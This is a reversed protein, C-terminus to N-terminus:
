GEKPTSEEANLVEKVERTLEEAERLAKETRAKLDEVKNVISDIENFAYDVAKTAIMTSLVFGGVAIFARGIPKTGKPTTERVINKIIGSVGVSIVFGIVTKANRVWSM